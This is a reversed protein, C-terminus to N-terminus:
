VSGPTVASVVQNRGAQKARYLAEDAKRLLQAANGAHGPFTAVGFSATIKPLSVGDAMVQLGDIGARLKEAMASATALDVEPLIITLEEGGYRCCIDEGRTQALLLEGIAALVRDGGSHGHLDNFQKFHDVDLMLVSLPQGRRTCRSLEHNLAEELYRRNFLGTLPDRISQQRLTERLRLNHLALSLQEAAAEAVTLSALEQANDGRLALMGLQTGQASLPICVTSAHPPLNVGAHQCVMGVSADEVLHTRDRRLAWCEDPAINGREGDALTGWAAVQEARDRSARLLYVAGSVGPVLPAITRATIELAEEANRCNQLLGSYRALAELGASTRELTSFSEALRTSSTSAEEEARVRRALERSLLRYALVMVLLGSLIGIATMWLVWRASDHNAQTRSVLQRRELEGMLQVQRRLASSTQFVGKAISARAGDLGTARYSHLLDNIQVLRMDVLKDLAAVNRLQLPNDQVLVELRAIRGPLRGIADAHVGLFAENDTLVFGRASSEASLLGAQIEDISAIVEQTHSVWAAATLSQRSTIYGGVGILVFILGGLM